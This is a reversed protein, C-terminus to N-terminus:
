CCADVDDATWNEVGERAAVYVIGLAAVPDAWWWGFLANLGLGVVLIASLWVCLSTETADAEVARSGLQRRVRRKARALVPMVVLSVMALVIGPLSEDPAARSILDRVSEIAVGVALLVFTVAILKVARREATASVDGGRRKQRLRWLIVSGAFVEVFSDAGFGVLAISGAAIGLAIGVVGEAANWVVTFWALARARRVLEARPPAATSANM